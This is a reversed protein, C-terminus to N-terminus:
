KPRPPRGADAQRAADCGRARPHRVSPERRAAIGGMGLWQGQAALFAGEGRAHDTLGSCPPTDHRAIKNSIYGAKPHAM